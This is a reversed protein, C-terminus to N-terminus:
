TPPRDGSPATWGAQLDAILDVLTRFSTWAGEEEVTNVNADVLGFRDRLAGLQGAITDASPRGTPLRQGTLEHFSSDVVDVPPGGPAGLAEVVREVERRVSTRCAVLDDPDAEARLPSLGDLIRLIETRAATARRYLSAQGGTVAGLDAQIAYGRPEFATSQFRAFFTDFASQDHIHFWRETQLGGSFRIVSSVDFSRQEGDVTAGFRQAALVHDDSGSVCVNHLTFTGDTRQGIEQVYAVLATRGQIERSFWTTGPVHWIVDQHMTAALEEFDGAGFALATRRYTVADPHDPGMTADRTMRSDEVPRLDGPM